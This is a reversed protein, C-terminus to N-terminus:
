FLSGQREMFEATNDVPGEAVPPLWDSWEWASCWRCRAMAPDWRVVEFCHASRPADARGKCTVPKM